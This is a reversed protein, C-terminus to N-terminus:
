VLSFHVQINTITKLTADATNFTVPHWGERGKGSKSNEWWTYTLTRREIETEMEQMALLTQIYHEDPICNEQTKNVQFQLLPISTLELITM